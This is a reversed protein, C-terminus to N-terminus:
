PRVSLTNILTGITSSSIANSVKRRDTACRLAIISRGKDQILVSV